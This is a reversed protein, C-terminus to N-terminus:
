NNEPLVDKIISEIENLKEPSLQKIQEQSLKFQNIQVYNNQVFNNQTMGFNKGLIDFYLKAAKVDGNVAFAFIRALVKEAMFRFKELQVQYLPHLSYEKLHKYITQRSLGTKEAIENKVPMRGYEQMLDSITCIIKTHNQEWLQHKIENPLIPNMYKIFEDREDGKLTAFQEVIFNGFNDYDKKGFGYKTKLFERTDSGTLESETFKQLSKNKKTM